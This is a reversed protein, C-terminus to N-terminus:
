RAAAAGSPSSSHRRGNVILDLRTVLTAGLSGNWIENGFWVGQVESQPPLGRRIADDLFAKLNIRPPAGRFGAIRYQFENDGAPTPVFGYDRYGDKLTKVDSAKGYWDFWITVRGAPKLPLVVTLNHEGQDNELRTVADMELELSKLAAVAV